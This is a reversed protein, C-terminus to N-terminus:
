LLLFALMLLTMHDLFVHFAAAHLLVVDDVDDSDSDADVDVDVVHSEHV